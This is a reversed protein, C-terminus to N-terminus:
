CRSARRATKPSLAFSRNTGSAGATARATFAPTSGDAAPDATTVVFVPDANRLPAAVDAERVGVALTLEGAECRIAVSRGAEFASTTVIGGDDETFWELAQVPQAAMAIAAALGLARLRSQVYQGAVM